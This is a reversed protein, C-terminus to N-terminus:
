LTESVYNFLSWLSTNWYSTLYAVRSSGRLQLKFVSSSKQRDITSLLCAHDKLMIKKKLKIVDLERM